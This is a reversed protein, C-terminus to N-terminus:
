RGRGGWTTKGTRQQPSGSSGVRGAQHNGSGEVGAPAQTCAWSWTSLQPPSATPAPSPRCQGTLVGSGSSTCYFYFLFLVFCFMVVGHCTPLCVASFPSLTKEAKQVQSGVNETKVPGQLDQPLGPHGYDCIMNKTSKNQQHSVNTFYYTGERPRQTGM